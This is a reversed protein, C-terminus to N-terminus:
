YFKINDKFTGDKYYRVVHEKGKTDTLYIIYRDSSEYVPHGIKGGAYGNLGHNKNLEGVLKERPEESFEERKNILFGIREVISYLRGDTTKQPVDLTDLYNNVTNLDEYLVPKILKAVSIRYGNVEEVILEFDTEKGDFFLKPNEISLENDSKCLKYNATMLNGGITRTISHIIWDENYKKLNGRYM